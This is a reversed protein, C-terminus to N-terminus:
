DSLWQQLGFYLLGLGMAMLGTVAVGASAALVGALSLVFGCFTLGFMIFDWPGRESDQLKSNMDCWHRGLRDFSIRRHVAFCYNDSGTPNFAACGSAAVLLSIPHCLAPTRGPM